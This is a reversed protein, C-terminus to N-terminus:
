HREGGESASRRDEPVGHRILLEVARRAGAREAQRAHRWAAAYDGAVAYMETLAAHAAGFGPDLRVAELLLGLAEERRGQTRRWQALQYYPRANGPERAIWELIEEIQRRTEYDLAFEIVERRWFGM